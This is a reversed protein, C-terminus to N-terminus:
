LLKVSAPTNGCFTETTLFLSNGLTFRQWFNGIMELWHALFHTIKGDTSFSAGTGTTSYPWAEDQGWCNTHAGVTGPVQFLAPDNQLVNWCNINCIGTYFCYVHSFFMHLFGCHGRKWGKVAIERGQMYVDVDRWSTHLSKLFLDKWFIQEEFKWAKLLSTPDLNWRQCMARAEQECTPFPQSLSARVKDSLSHLTVGGQNTLVRVRERPSDVWALEM